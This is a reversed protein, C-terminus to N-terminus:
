REMNLAFYILADFLRHSHHHNQAKSLRGSLDPLTYKFFLIYDRRVSVTVTYKLNINVKYKLLCFTM